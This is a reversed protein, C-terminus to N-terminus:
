CTDTTSFAIACSASRRAMAWRGRAAPQLDLPLWEGLIRISEEAAVQFTFIAREVEARATKIPKGAELALTSAIEEKRCALGQAM